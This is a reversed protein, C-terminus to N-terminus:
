LQIRDIINHYTDNIATLRQEISSLDRGVQTKADACCPDYSQPDDEELVPSILSILKEQTEAMMTVREELSTLKSPIENIIPTEAIIQNPQM